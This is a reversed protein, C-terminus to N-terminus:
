GRMLSLLADVRDEDASWDCVMRAPLSEDEPGDGLVGEPTHQLYYQVGAGQLRRHFSRSAKFFLMNAEVPHLLTVEPIQQLGKALRAGAANASAAMGHWLDGQMAAAIQAALFRHKSLTLGMRQRRIAASAAHSPDFFVVAEAAMLGNKTGGLSLAGIGARWTMEAPSCGLAAVANAWRAGDMHVPMGHHQALDSLAAIEGLRYLTGAETVQTLSLAGRRERPETEIRAALAAVSLRGHPAPIPATEAGGSALPLAGAEDMEIHAAEACFVRGWPSVLSALAVANAAIGTPVLLVEAEPAEFVERIGAVARETWPDGGYPMAHGANAALLADLIAPHVPGANDSAFNLAPRTTAGDPSM